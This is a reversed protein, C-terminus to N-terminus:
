GVVLTHCRRLGAPDFGPGSFGAALRMPGM